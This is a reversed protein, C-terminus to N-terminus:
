ANTTPYKKFASGQFIHISPLTNKLREREDIWNRSAQIQFSNEVGIASISLLM